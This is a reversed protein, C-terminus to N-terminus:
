LPLDLALPPHVAVLPEGAREHAPAAVIEIDPHGALLRPLEGGAYGSAGAVAVRAGMGVERMAICSITDDHVQRRCSARPLCPVTLALGVPIVAAAPCGALRKPNSM